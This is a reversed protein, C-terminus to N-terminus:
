LHYVKSDTQEGLQLKLIESSETRGMLTAFYELLATKGTGLDGEIIVPNKTTLSFTLAKLAANLSETLIFNSNKTYNRPLNKRIPVLIGSMPLLNTKIDEATFILQGFGKEGDEMADDQTSNMSNLKGNRLDYQLAINAGQLVMNNDLNAYEAATSLCRLYHHDQSVIGKKVLDWNINLFFKQSDTLLLNEYVKMLLLKDNEILNQKQSVEKLKCFINETLDILFSAELILKSIAFSSKIIEKDDEFNIM